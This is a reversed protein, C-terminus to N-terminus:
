RLRKLYNLMRGPIYVETQVYKRLRDNVEYFRAFCPNRTILNDQYTFASIKKAINKIGRTPHRMMTPTKKLFFPVHFNDDYCIHYEVGDKDVFAQSVTEYPTNKFDLAYDIFSAKNKNVIKNILREKLMGVYKYHNPNLEQYAQFNQKSKVIGFSANGARIMAITQPSLVKNDSLHMRDIEYYGKKKLYRMLFGEMVKAFNEDFLYPMFTEGAFSAKKIKRTRGWSEQYFETFGVAIHYECLKTEVAGGSLIQDLDRKRDKGEMIRREEDLNRPNRNLLGLHEGCQCNIDFGSQVRNNEVYPHSIVSRWYAGRDPQTGPSRGKVFFTFTGQVSYSANRNKKEFGAFVEENILSTTTERNNKLIDELTKVTIIGKNDEYLKQLLPLDTHEGKELEKNLKKLNAAIETRTLWGLYAEAFRSPPFVIDKLKYQPRVFLGYVQPYIGQKKYRTRAM